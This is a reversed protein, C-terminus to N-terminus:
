EVAVRVTSSYTSTTVDGNANTAPEFRARKQLTRCARSDFDRSGSSTNVICEEARGRSNVALTFRLTGNGFQRQNLRRFDDPRVWGGPNIPKVVRNPPFRGTPQFSARAPQQPQPQAAPQTRPQPLARTQPVPAEPRRTISATRAPEFTQNSYRWQEACQNLLRFAASSTKLSVRAVIQGSDIVTLFKAQRFQQEIASSDSSPAYTRGGLLQGGFRTDDFAWAIEGGNTFGRGPGDLRLAGTRGQYKTFVLSGSIGSTLRLECSRSEPQQVIMWRGLDVFVDESQRSQATAGSPALAIFGAVATLSFTNRLIHFRKVIM